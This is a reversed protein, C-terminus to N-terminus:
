ALTKLLATAFQEKCIKCKYPKMGSKKIKHYKLGTNKEDNYNDCSKKRFQANSSSTSFTSEELNPKPDDHCKGLESGSQEDWKANCRGIEDKLTM